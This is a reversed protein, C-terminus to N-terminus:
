MTPMLWWAKIPGWLAWPCLRRVTARGVILPPMLAWGLRGAQTGLRHRVWVGTYGARCLCVIQQSYGDRHCSTAFHRRSGPGEPCPCPRCQGGAVLRPDGHYGATCRGPPAASTYDGPVRGAGEGPRLEGTVTCAQPTTAAARALALTPMVNTRMGMAPVHGAHLSDGSAVSAATVAFGLPVLVAPASGVPERASGM